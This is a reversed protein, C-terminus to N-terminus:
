SAPPPAGSERWSSWRVKGGGGGGGGVKLSRGVGSCSIALDLDGALIKSKKALIKGLFTKSPSTGLIYMVAHM